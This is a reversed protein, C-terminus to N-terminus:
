RKQNKLYFFYGLYSIGTCFVMIALSHINLPMTYYTITLGVAIGCLLIAWKFADDTKNDSNKGLITASLQESIGRNVIKIKLRYDLIYKTVTVIMFVLLSVILVPMLFEINLDQSMPDAIEHPMGQQLHVSLSDAKNQATAVFPALIGAICVIKKNM